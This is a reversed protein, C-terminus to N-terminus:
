YHEAHRLGALSREEGGLPSWVASCLSPHLEFRGNREELLGSRVLSVLDNEVEEHRESELGWVAAAAPADFNGAFVGLQRYREQLVVPLATLSFNVIAAPSEEGVHTQKGGENLGHIFEAPSLDPRSALAGAALRLALPLNGCLRAVEAAQDGIRPAIRRLLAVADAESLAGLQLQEILVHSPRSSRSTVVVSAGEGPILWEIAKADDVEDFVFLRASGDTASRFLRALGELDPPAAVFPLLDGLIGTLAAAARDKFDGPLDGFPVWWVGESYRSAVKPVVARVLSTKGIGGPGTVLLRAGRELLAATLQRIESARGVFEGSTSEDSAGIELRWRPGRSPQAAIQGLSLDLPIDRPRIEPRTGPGFRFVAHHISWFDPANRRFVKWDFPHLVFIFPADARQAIVDRKQNLLLFLHGLESEEAKTRKGGRFWFWCPRPAQAVEDLIATVLHEGAPPNSIDFGRLSVGKEEAHRELLKGLLEEAAVDETTVALFEFGQALDLAARLRKWEPRNRSEQVWEESRDPADSGAPQTLPM